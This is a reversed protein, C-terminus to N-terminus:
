SLPSVHMSNALSFGMVIRNNLFKRLFVDAEDFFILDLDCNFISSIIALRSAALFAAFLPSKYAPILTVSM